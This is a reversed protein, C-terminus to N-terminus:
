ELKKQRGLRWAKRDIKTHHNAKNLLSRSKPGLFTAIETVERNVLGSLIGIEVLNHIQDNQSRAMNEIFVGARKLLSIDSKHLEIFANFFDEFFIYSGIEIANLLTAESYTELMEPFAKLCDADFQKM